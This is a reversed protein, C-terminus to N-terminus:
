ARGGASPLRLLFAEAAGHSFKYGSVRERVVVVKVVVVVMAERPDRPGKTWDKTDQGVERGSEEVIM